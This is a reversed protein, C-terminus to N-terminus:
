SATKDATWYPLFISLATAFSIADAMFVQAVSFTGGMVRVEELRKGTRCGLFVLGENGHLVALCELSEASACKDLLLRICGTKRISSQTVCELGSTIGCPIRVRRNEDEVLCKTDRRNQTM